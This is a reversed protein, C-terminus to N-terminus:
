GAWRVFVHSIQSFLAGRRVIVGPENTTQTQLDPQM